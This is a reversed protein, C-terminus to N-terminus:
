WNDCVPIHHLINGGTHGRVPVTYAADAPLLFPCETSALVTDTDALHTNKAYTISVVPVHVGTHTISIMNNIGLTYIWLLSCFCFSIARVMIDWECVPPHWMYITSYSMLLIVVSSLLLGHSVRTHWDMIIAISLFLYLFCASGDVYSVYWWHNRPQKNCGIQNLLFGFLITKLLGNSDFVSETSILSDMYLVMYILAYLSWLVSCEVMNSKDSHDTDVMNVRDNHNTDVMNVEDHHNSDGNQITSGINSRDFRTIIMLLAVLCTAKMIFICGPIYTIAMNKDIPHLMVNSGVPETNAALDSNESYRNRM